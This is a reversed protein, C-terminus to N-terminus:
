KKPSGPNKPSSPNKSPSSSKPPSPNKSPSSTKPTTPAKKDDGHFIKGFEVKFDPKNVPGSISIPVVAGAGDKALLPDLAKLPVRKWGTVMQSVRAEMRAAGTFDLTHATMSYTGDLHIEAGRVKFQLRSMTLTGRGLAFDSRLDSAVNDVKENGPEGRGRRSLEDIKDQVQSSAFRASAIHFKGKLLLRVPVPPDGPPLELHTVMDFAGSMDPDGKIALRLMDEFRGNTVTVDLEVSRGHRGEVHVVGGRATLHSRGLTAEVPDLLTDGNTGDVIASFETNLPVPNGGVDISFDPTQTKGHVLIRELRGEFTGQSSLVGGIGKITDLQADNFTYTGTLPTTSPDEAMWPGFTGTAEILGKPLPNTLEAQYSTPRDFAAKSLTLKHILFQRPPRGEKRTGIELLTDNATLKDVVVPTKGGLSRSLNPRSEDGHSGPTADGDKDDDKRRPPVFVHLGTLEVSSVHVPKRLISLVPVEITCTDISVLPPGDVHRKHHLVVSRVTVHVIPGLAVSVDGLEVSSGLKDSLLAILKQRIRPMQWKYVVIGGITAFVGFAVLVVFLIWTRKRWSM